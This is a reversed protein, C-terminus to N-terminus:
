GDGRRGYGSAAELVLRVAGFLELVAQTLSRAFLGM